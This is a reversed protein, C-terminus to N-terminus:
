KQFLALSNYIDENTMVRITENIRTVIWTFLRGYLARCLAERARGAERANLDTVLVEHRVEVSCTLLGALLLDFDAHLLECVDYLESVSLCRPYCTLGDSDMTQLGTPDSMSEGYENALACGETGDMNMSPVFQLNGLKLTAAVIRFVDFIDDPSFDLDEMAKQTSGHCLTGTGVM